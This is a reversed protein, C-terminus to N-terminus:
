NINNFSVCSMDGKDGFKKNREDISQKLTKKAAEIYSDSAKNLKNVFSPEDAWWIPSAFYQELQLQKPYDVIEKLAGGNVWNPCSTQYEKASSKECM